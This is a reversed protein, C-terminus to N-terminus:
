LAAIPPLSDVLAVKLEDIVSFLQAAPLPQRLLGDPPEVKDIADVLAGVAARALPPPIANGVCHSQYRVHNFLAYSDPFGQLRLIHRVQLARLDGQTVRDIPKDSPAVVLRFYSNDHLATTLVTPAPADARLVGTKESGPRIRARSRLLTPTVRLEEPCAGKWLSKFDNLADYATPPRDASTPTPLLADGCMLHTRAAADTTRVALLIARKRRQAVEYETCHVVEARLAFGASELREMHERVGESHRPHMMASVNEMVLGRPRVRACLEVVFPLGDREDSSGNGTGTCSYPQCPPSALIVLRERHPTLLRVWHDMDCTRLMQALSRTGCENERYAAICGTEMDIGFLNAVGVSQAGVSFGGIGCFFDLVILQSPLSQAKVSAKVTRSRAGKDFLARYRRALEGMMYGPVADRTDQGSAIGVLEQLHQDHQTRELHAERIQDRIREPVELQGTMLLATGRSGVPNGNPDRYLLFTCGDMTEVHEVTWNPLDDGAAHRGVHPVPHLLARQPHRPVHDGEENLLPGCPGNSRRRVNRKRIGALVNRGSRISALSARRASKSGRKKANGSTGAKKARRAAAPDKLHRMAADRSPFVRGDPSILAMYSRGRESKRVQQTWGQLTGTLATQRVVTSRRAGSAAAPKAPVEVSAVSHTELSTQTAM